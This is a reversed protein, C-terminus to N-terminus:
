SNEGEVQKLAISLLRRVAEGETKTGEREGYEIVRSWFSKTFVITKRVDAEPVSDSTSM